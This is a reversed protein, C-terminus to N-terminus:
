RKASAGSVNGLREGSLVWAQGRSPHHSPLCHESNSSFQHWLRRGKRPRRRRTARALEPPRIKKAPAGSSSLAPAAPGRAYVIARRCLPPLRFPTACWAVFPKRGKAWAALDLAREYAADGAYLEVGRVGRPSALEPTPPGRPGCGRITPGPCDIALACGCQRPLGCTASTM